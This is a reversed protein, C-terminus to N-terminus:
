SAARRGPASPKSLVAFQFVIGVLALAFFAILQMNGGLEFPTLLLNAGVLSSLIVLAPDFLMLFLVVGVIGGIVIFLLGLLSAEGPDGLGLLALVFYAGGVFGAIGVAVWQFVIALLAAVLGVVLGVIVPLWEVDSNLYQTATEFGVLFGLIAVYVWFLQRGMLLLALGAILTLVFATINM